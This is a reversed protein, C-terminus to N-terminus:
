NLAAVLGAWGREQSRWIVDGNHASLLVRVRKEEEQRFGSLVWIANPASIQKIVPLLQRLTPPRLNALIVDYYANEDLTLAEGSITIVDTLGNLDLNIQAERCALPDLDVGTAGGIGLGVAVMALVGSGTGIDMATMHALQRVEGQQALVRDMGQICLRTTPHDGVGFATGDQLKITIETGDKPPSYNAPCLTIRDSVRVLRNVNIELHTTSFHNTYALAGETVMEKIASRLARRSVQPLQRHLSGELDSPTMRIHHFGLLDLVCNRILSTRPM